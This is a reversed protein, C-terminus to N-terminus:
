FSWFEEIKISYSSKGVRFNGLFSFFISFSSLNACFNPFNQDRKSAWFIKEMCEKIFKRVKAISKPVKLSVWVHRFLRLTGTKTM